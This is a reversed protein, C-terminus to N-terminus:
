FAMANGQDSMQLLRSSWLARSSSLLTGSVVSGPLHLRLDLVIFYPLVEQKQSNHLLYKYSNIGQYRQHYQSGLICQILGYPEHQKRKPYTSQSSRKGPFSGHQLSWTSLGCLFLSLHRLHEQQELGLWRLRCGADVVLFTHSCDKLYDLRRGELCVVQCQTSCLLTTEMSGQGFQLNHALCVDNSSAVLNQPLQYCLQLYGSYWEWRQFNYTQPTIFARELQPM